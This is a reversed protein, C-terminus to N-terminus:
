HSRPGAARTLRDNIATGLGHTPVPEVAILPPAGADLAKLHSYLSAAAQRLDGTESLNLVRGAQSRDKGAGTGFALLAAGPPCAVVDLKLPAEPAYHSELMGPAEIKGKGAMEVPLGSVEALQEATVAGPRLLVIRDSEARAITSEIGVACAGGDVILFCGQPYDAAVHAARTPSVRGSRNASPAALPRGLEAVITRALGRPCRIAITDLGATVLEHIGSHPQKPVVLTLPGPWFARALSKSVPDFRGFRKAMALDCVHCILPNFKPRGKLEFIRAVAHGNTADAALGYVTETPLAVCDGVALAEVAAATEDRLESAGPATTTM